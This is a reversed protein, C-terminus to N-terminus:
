EPSSLSRRAQEAHYESVDLYYTATVSVDSHGMWKQLVHMPVADALRTGYSRRLDHIVGLTWEIKSLARAARRQIVRFDRLLNNVAEFRDRLTGQKYKLNLWRLRDLSLFCYPSRDGAARLEGLVDLTSSPIPVSRQQHTKPSWALSRYKDGDPGDPVEPDKAVVTVTMGEFDIERWQLHLLEQRRLGSTYALQIFAKWWLSPAASIMAAIEDPQFIRMRRSKPRPMTQRAFPNEKILGWDKARNFMARLRGITKGKTTASSTMSNKIRVVDPAGISSITRTEGLAAVAHKIAIRYEYRTSAKRDEGIAQEHFKVFQELTMAQPKDRPVERRDMEVQFTRRQAEAERKTMQSCNALKKCYHKGDTGHWRLHWEERTGGSSLPRKIRRLHVPTSVPMM